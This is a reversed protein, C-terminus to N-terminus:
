PRPAGGQAWRAVACDVFRERFPGFLGDLCQALIVRAEARDTADRRAELIELLLLKDGSLRAEAAAASLVDGDRGTRGGALLLRAQLGPAGIAALADVADGVAGSDVTLIGVMGAHFARAIRDPVAAAGEAARVHVALAAQTDGTAARLDALTALYEARVPWPAPTDGCAAHAVLLAHAGEVDGVSLHVRARGIAVSAASFPANREGVLESATRLSEMAAALRGSARQLEALRVLAECGALTRDVARLEAALGRYLTMARLPNGQLAVIRADGLRADVGIRDVPGPAARDLARHFAVLALDLEGLAFHVHGGALLTRATAGPPPDLVLASVDIPLHTGLLLALDLHALAVRLTLAEDDVAVALTRGAELASRAEPLRGLACLADCRALALTALVHGDDIPLGTAADLVDLGPLPRGGSVLWDGLEVLRMTEHPDRAGRALHLLLFRQEWERASRQRAADALLLHIGRQDDETMGNLLIPELVARRLSVWEEGGRLKVEVLGHRLAPGLDAGSPDAAAVALLLDLPVPEGAVALAQVLSRTAESLKALARGFLRTTDEGPLLRASPDWAWRPRGDEGMGECWVAGRDVQERLVAAVLAPLGGTTRMMATDLGLPVAPTGLMSGVQERVEAVTLPRLGIERGEPLPPLARGTLVMAIGPVRAVRDVLEVCGDPALDLDEFVLLFRGDQAILAGLVGLVGPLDPVLPGAISDLERALVAVIEAPGLRARCRVTAYEVHAERALAVAHRAVVGLGAGLEGHIRLVGGGDLVAQIAGTAAERGFLGPPGVDCMMGRSGTLQALAVSASAPRASPDRAMLRDVLAALRVPIDPVREVIPVAGAARHAQLYGALGTAQYPREGVLAEYLTIGLSYLDCRHDSEAGAIQEPAMYAHTGLVDGLTTTLPDSIDAALGLDVLVIRHDQGLWVNSAKIDRHVIGNEHLYALTRLASSALLVGQEPSLPGSRLRVDLSVGELLELVLVPQEGEIVGFCRVLGPYSLRQLLRGERVFRKRLGSRDAERLVKLAVDRGRWTGRFVDAIGGEGIREAFDLGHTPETPM